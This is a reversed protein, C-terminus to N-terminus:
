EEVPFRREREVHVTEPHVTEGDVEVPQGASLKGFAPGEPVGLTRARDPDFAAERALVADDTREVEYEGALVDALGDVLRERDVADAFAARGTARAGNDTTEFALATDAVAARTADADIGQAEALLAGPLPAVVLDEVAPAGPGATADAPTEVARAPDGFRTGAEVPGLADELTAVLGLPVGTTERVWTEGVVRYGLEEVAREVDPADGDVLARTAASATFAADLVARGDESDPDGLEELSWDAAVHGVAWDTERVVREFRPAYHGGGVGVLHRRDATEEGPEADAAGDSGEDGPLDPDVGRLDLIARAVARAGDPDDWEGPGSGLEVFMSPAGVDTPGHHTCEMGVEYGEPAHEALAELVRRHAGPCARALARDEGGFEAAGFNGTHHATLLPGTEGAHRSAFVLLDPDREPGDDVRGFADAVGETELHLADFERLEVPAAADAPDATTDGEFGGLRYVPEGGEGDSRTADAHETWDAAERLHEGVHVSASDARSVVVALM